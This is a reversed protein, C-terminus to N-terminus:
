VRLSDFNVGFCAMNTDFCSSNAFFNASAFLLLGPIILILINKLTPIEEVPQIVNEAVVENGKKDKKFFIILAQIVFIVGIIKSINSLLLLLLGFQFSLVAIIMLPGTLILPLIFFLCIGILMKILTKKHNADM